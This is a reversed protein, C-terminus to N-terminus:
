PNARLFPHVIPEKSKFFFKRFIENYSAYVYAGNRKIYADRQSRFETPLRYWALRPKSHHVFHYNNFLFLFAIPCAKEIIVTRESKDPAAQHELFTRVYLLSHGLYIALMWQLAPVASFSTILLAMVSWLALHQAWVRVLYRRNKRDKIINRIECFYFRGLGILPGILMRGCLTNNFRLVAQFWRSEILPNNASLYWSEPDDFPDTLEGTYHHQLHTDRFREFPISWGIPLLVMLQNVRRNTTPHKHVVEHTISMFLTVNAASILVWVAPHLSEGSVLLAAWISYSAAILFVTPWEIRLKALSNAFTGM